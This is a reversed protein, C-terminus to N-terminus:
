GSVFVSNMNDNWAQILNKVEWLRDKYPPPDSKSYRIATLMKDFRRRSMYHSVQFPSVNLEDCVKNLFFSDRSPRVVTSM